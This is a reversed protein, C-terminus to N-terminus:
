EPLVSLLEYGLSEIGGGDARLHRHAGQRGCHGHHGHHHGQGAKVGVVKGSADITAVSPDSSTWTVDTDSDTTLTINKFQEVTDTEPGFISLSTAAPKKMVHITFTETHWGLAYYERQVTADGVERGTATRLGSSSGSLKVNESGSSVTWSEGWWANEDGIWTLQSDCLDM